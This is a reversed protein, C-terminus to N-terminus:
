SVNGSSLLSHLSHSVESLGGMWTSVALSVGNVTIWGAYVGWQILPPAMTKFTPSLFSRSFKTHSFTYFTYFQPTYTGGTEITAGGKCQIYCKM